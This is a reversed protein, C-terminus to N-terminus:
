TVLVSPKNLAAMGSKQWFNALLFLSSLITASVPCFFVFFPAAATSWNTSLGELFDQMPAVRSVHTQIGAAAHLTTLFFHSGAFEGPRREDQQIRGDQKRSGVAAAEFVQHDQGSEQGAGGFEKRREPFNKFSIM